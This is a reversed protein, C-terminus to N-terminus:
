FLIVETHISKSAIIIIGIMVQVGVNYMKSGVQKNRKSKRWM